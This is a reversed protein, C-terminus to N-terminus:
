APTPHHKNHEKLALVGLIVMLFARVSDFLLMDIRNYQVFVIFSVIFILLGVTTGAQIGATNGKRIWVVSWLCITASLVLNYMMILQLIGMDPQHRVGFNTLLGPFNAFAFLALSLAVVVQFVLLASLGNKWRRKEKMLLHYESGRRSANAFPALRSAFPAM